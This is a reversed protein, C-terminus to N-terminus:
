KDISRVGSLRKFFLKVAIFSLVMWVAKLCLALLQFAVVILTFALSIVVQLLCASNIEEAKRQEYGLEYGYEIDTWNM